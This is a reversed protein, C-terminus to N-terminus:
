SMLSSIPNNGLAPAKRNSLYLSVILIQVSSGLKYIIGLSFHFLVTLTNKIFILFEHFFYFTPYINLPTQNPNVHRLTIRERM